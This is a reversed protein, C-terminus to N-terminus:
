WMAGWPGHSSSRGGAGSAAGGDSSSDELTIHSPLSGSHVLGVFIAGSDLEDPSLSLCGFCDAIFELSGFHITEGPALNVSTPNNGNAIFSLKPSTVMPNDHTFAHQLDGKRARPVTLTKQAPL